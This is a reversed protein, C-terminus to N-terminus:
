EPDPLAGSMRIGARAGPLVDDAHYATVRREFSAQLEDAARGVGQPSTRLSAEVVAVGITVLTVRGKEDTETQYELDELPSYEAELGAAAARFVPEFAQDPGQLIYDLRISPYAEDTM